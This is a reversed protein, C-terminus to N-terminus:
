LETIEITVAPDPAQLQINTSGSVAANISNTGNASITGAANSTTSHNLVNYVNPDATTSITVASALAANVFVSLGTVPEESTNTANKGVVHIQKTVGYPLNITPM